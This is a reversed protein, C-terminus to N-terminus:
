LPAFPRSAHRVRNNRRASRLGPLNARPSGSLRRIPPREARTRLTSFPQRSPKLDFARIPM